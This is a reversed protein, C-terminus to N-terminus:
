KFLIKGALRVYGKKSSEFCKKPNRDFRCLLKNSYFKKVLFRIFKYQFNNKILNETTKDVDKTIKNELLRGKYLEDPFEFPVRVINRHQPKIEFDDYLKDITNIYGEAFSKSTLERQYLEQNGEKAISLQEGDLKIFNLITSILEDVNEPEFFFAGKAKDELYKYGGVKACILPVGLSLVEIMSLDFYSGRNAMVCADAMNIYNGPM